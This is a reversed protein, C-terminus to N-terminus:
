NKDSQTFFSSKSEMTSNGVVSQNRNNNKINVPNTLPKIKKEIVLQMFSISQQFFQILDLAFHRKSSKLALQVETSM